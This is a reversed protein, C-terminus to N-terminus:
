AFALTPAQLEYTGSLACRFCAARTGLRSAWAWSERAGLAPPDWLVKSSSRSRSPQPSDRTLATCTSTRLPPPTSSPCSPRRRWTSTTTGTSASSSTTRRAASLSPTPAALTRPSSLQAPNPPRLSPLPHRYTICASCYLGRCAAAHAVWGSRRVEESEAYLSRLVVDTFPLPASAGAAAAAQGVRVDFKWGTLRYVASRLADRYETFKEKMRQRLKEIEVGSSGGGGGAGVSGPTAGSSLAGAALASVDILAPAAASIDGAGGAQGAAQAGLQRTVAAIKALAASLSGGTAELQSRLTAAEATLAAIQAAQREDRDRLAAASPNRLLHLVRLGGRRGGVLASTGDGSGAAAAAAARVAAATDVGAEAEELAADLGPLAPPTALQACLLDREGRLAAAEALLSAVRGHLADVLGRGPLAAAAEHAAAVAEHAAALLGELVQVRDSLAACAPSPCRGGARQGEGAFAAQEAEYTALLSTLNAVQAQTLSCARAQRAAAAEAAATQQVAAMRAAESESLAAEVAQRAASAAGLAAQAQGLQRAAAEGRGQLAQVAGRLQECRSRSRSLAAALQQSVDAAKSGAGSGHADALLGAITQEASTPAAPPPALLTGCLAEWADVAEAAMRLRTEAVSASAAAAELRGNKAQLAALREQALQANGVEAARSQLESAAARERREAARLAERLERLQREVSSEGAGAAVAGAATAASASTVAAAVRLQAADAKAEALQQELGHVAAELRAASSTALSHQDALDRKLRANERQLHEYQSRLVSAETEAASAHKRLSSSDTAASASGAEKAGMLSAAADARANSSELAATLTEVQSRLKVVQEQLEAAVAEHADADMRRLLELQKAVAELRAHSAVSCMGHARLSGVAASGGLFSNDGDDRSVEARPRKRASGDGEM